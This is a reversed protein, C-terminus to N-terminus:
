YVFVITTKNIRNQSNLLDVRLGPDSLRLAGQWLTSMDQNGTTDRGGCPYCFDLAEGSEEIGTNAADDTSRFNVENGCDPCTFRCQRRESDDLELTHGCHPCEIEPPLIGESLTGEDTEDAIEVHSFVSNGTPKANGEDYATRFEIMEEGGFNNMVELYTKFTECAEKV